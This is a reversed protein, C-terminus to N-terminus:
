QGEIAGTNTTPGSREVGNYSTRVGNFSSAQLAPSSPLLSFDASSPDAFLPNATLNGSTAVSGNFQSNGNPCFAINDGVHTTDASTVNCFRLPAGTERYATNFELRCGTPVPGTGWASEITIANRDQIDFVNNRVACDHGLIGVCWNGPSRNRFYNGEILYLSALQGPSTANEPGISIVGFTETELTNDSVVVTHTPNPAERGCLKMATFYADGWYNAQIVSRSIYTRLLHEGSGDLRNGLMAMHKCTADTPGYAYMGYQGSNLMENEYITVGSRDYLSIAMGVAQFRCGSVLTRNGVGIGPAWFPASSSQSDFDLDLVRFDSTSVLSVGTNAGTFAVIPRNGSGYTGITCAGNTGPIPLGDNLVFTDGRRLLLRADAGSSFAEQVAVQLTQFPQSATGPNSNDGDNAVYYTRTAYVVEPDSVTVDQFYDFTTGGSTTIELTVRYTGPNEFVHAAIPGRSTNKSRGGHTWNGSGPDGFNWVYTYDHVNDGGSPLAVGAESTSADFQIALPAVGSIRTASTMSNGSLASVTLHAPFTAESQPAATPVFSVTASYAGASLTTAANTLSVTVTTSANAALEGVAIDVELWNEDVSATWPLPSSGLNTLEYTATGDSFPGTEPGYASLNAAATVQLEAGPTSSSITLQAPFTAALQPAGSPAFSVTATYTGAPLTEADATLGLVITTTANGALVGDAVDLALWSQDVTGIWSRPDSGLNTLQYEVGSASFPGGVPGFASLNSTSTVELQSGPVSTSSTVTLLVDKTHENVPDATNLFRVLGSYTGPGFAAATSDFSVVVSTVQGPDLTGQSVDISIWSQSTTAAWSLSEQGSNSLEYSVSAPAFPGGEPGTAVM